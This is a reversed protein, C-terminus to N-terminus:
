LERRMEHQAVVMDAGLERLVESFLHDSPINSLRLTHAGAAARILDGAAARDRAALQIVTVIVGDAKCIAAGAIGDPREVAVASLPVGRARMHGLSADARQWPERGGRQAAIWAHASDLDLVHHARAGREGPPLSWNALHRERIFGVGEYLGIAADNAELVELWVADAGARAASRLAETMLRAGLGARRRDPAVGLGGIWAQSGRYGTLALGAPAAGVAVISRALDIDNVAIYERLAGDDMQLPVLHGSFGLNFVDTLADPELCSAPVLRMQGVNSLSDM